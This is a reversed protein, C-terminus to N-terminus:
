SHSLIQQSIPAYNLNPLLQLTFDIIAASFCWFTYSRACRELHRM